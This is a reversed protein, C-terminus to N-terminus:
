PTFFYKQIRRDFDINAFNNNSIMFMLQLLELDDDSQKKNARRLSPTSAIRYMQDALARANRLQKLDEETISGGNNFKTLLILHEKM